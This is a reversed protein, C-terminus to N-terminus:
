DEDEERDSDSGNGFEIEDVDNASADTDLSDVNSFNENDQDVQSNCLSVDPSQNGKTKDFRTVLDAKLNPM